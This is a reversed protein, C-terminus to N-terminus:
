LRSYGSELDSCPPRYETCKRTTSKSAVIQLDHAFMHVRTDLFLILEAIPLLPYKWQESLEHLSTKGLMIGMPSLRYHMFERNQTDMALSIM